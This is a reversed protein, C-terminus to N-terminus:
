HQAHDWVIQSQHPLVAYPTERENWRSGTGRVSSIPWLRVTQDLGGTALIKSPSFDATM